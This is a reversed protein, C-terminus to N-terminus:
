SRQQMWRKWEDEWGGSRATGTGEGSEDDLCREGLLSWTRARIIKEVGRENLLVDRLMEARPERTYTYDRASYPDTREDVVQPVGFYSRSRRQTQVRDDEAGGLGGDDVVAVPSTAPALKDSPMRMVVQRRKEQSPDPESQPNRAVDECYSLM